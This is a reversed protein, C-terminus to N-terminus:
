LGSLSEAILNGNPSTQSEQAGTNRRRRGRPERPEPSDVLQTNAVRISIAQVEFIFSDGGDAGTRPISVSTISMQEYTWKDTTITVVTPEEVLRKMSNVVDAVRDFDAGFTVVQTGAAESQLLDAFTVGNDDYGSAPPAELPTNTVVATISLVDPNPVKHDSIAAGSEVAHQTTDSTWSHSETTVADFELLHEAVDSNLEGQENRFFSETQWSIRFTM